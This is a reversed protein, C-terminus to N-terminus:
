YSKKDKQIVKEVMDFSKRLSEELIQYYFKAQHYLTAVELDLLFHRTENIVPLILKTGKRFENLHGLIHKSRNLKLIERVVIAKRIKKMDKDSAIFIRSPNKDQKTTETLLAIESLPLIRLAVHPQVSASSEKELFALELGYLKSRQGDEEALVSKSQAKQWAKELFTVGKFKGDGAHETVIIKKRSVPGALDRKGVIDYIMRAVLADGGPFQEGTYDLALPTKAFEKDREARSVVYNHYKNFKRSRYVFGLDFMDEARVRYSDRFLDMDTDDFMATDKPTQIGISTSDRIIHPTIVVIVEKKDNSSSSGGFLNGIYPIDGLWPIKNTTSENDKSVLGGIIIPTKNPVIAFTHV